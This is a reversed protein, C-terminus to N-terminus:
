GNWKVEKNDLTKMFLIYEDWFARCKGDIKNDNSNVRRYEPLIEDIFKQNFPHGGMKISLQRVIDDDEDIYQKMAIKIITKAEADKLRHENPSYYGYGIDWKLFATKDDDGLDPSNAVVASLAYEFTSTISRM